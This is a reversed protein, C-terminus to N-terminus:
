EVRGLLDMLRLRWVMGVAEWIIRRNIKSVGARRDVFMIPIERLRFGRKWCKFSM